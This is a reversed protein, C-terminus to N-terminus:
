CVCLIIIHKLDHIHIFTSVQAQPQPRLVDAGSPQLRVQQLERALEDIQRHQTELQQQQLTTLEELGRVQETKEAQLRHIAVQLQENQTQQQTIQANKEALQRQTDALQREKDVLQTEKDALQRQNYAVRQILELKPEACTRPLTREVQELRRLVDEASPRDEQAYELCDLTLGVLPHNEGLDRKMQTVYDERREIESRAVLRRTRPDLYNHPKLDKPFLQILTFLEIVGFSFIDISTSYRAAGEGPVAEPPMYLNNGPGGTMTAALQGPQITVIRAVGLDAIKANFGSDILVNRATLDRHIVPPDHAHLYVVGSATGLLLHVKTDLPINPTTELFSDLNTQLKEMLLVPLRSGEVYCIGLFQVISPHRLKSM